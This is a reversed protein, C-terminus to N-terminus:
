RWLFQSILQDVQANEHLFSHEATLVDGTIRAQRYDVTKPLLPAIGFVTASAVELDGGTGFVDGAINLIKLGAPLQKLSTKLQAVRTKDPTNGLGTFPSGIAVFRAITPYQKKNATALITALGVGGGMSHGVLNVKAVGRQKLYALVQPLQAQEKQYDKNADFLVQIMANDDLTGFRQMSIHGSTSVTIKLALHAINASQMRQIFGSYTLANGAYGALLLTPTNSSAFHNNGLAHTRYQLQGYWLGMVALLAGLGIGIRKLWKM